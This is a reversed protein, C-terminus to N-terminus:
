KWSGIVNFGIYVQNLTGSIPRAVCFNGSDDKTPATMGQLVFAAGGNGNGMLNIGVYAPASAFLGYPLSQSFTESAYLSGKAASIGMNGFNRCGYCDAKGSKWKRWYWTGNSAMVDTGEEIVYDVIPAGQISVPVHFAFDTESWDFIPTANIILPDSAIGGFYDITSAEITYQEEYDINPIVVTVKYTGDPNIGTDPITAAIRETWEGNSEKYRYSCYLTNATKGMYGGYYSGSIEINISNTEVDAAGKLACTPYVYPAYNAIVIDQTTTNGRSDTVSMTLVNSTVKEFTGSMGEITYAGCTTKQSVITSEKRATAGMHFYLKSKHQVIVDRDGTVENIFDTNTDYYVPYLIAPAANIVTFTRAAKDLLNTGKVTTRIYFYMTRSNGGKTNQRLVKREAETLNFTYTQTDTNADIPITRYKVDDASGTLSICAQLSDISNVLGRPVYYTITPNEEDNFNPATRIEVKRAIADLTGTGSGTRGSIYSGNFTIALEQSFSFAFTKTGDANHKIVTTGGALTKSSNNAIGIYNTGSYSKSDITVSWAKAVNSSIAGYAGTILQLRWDITSTNDVISQSEITWTFKLSDYDTFKVIINGTTAM